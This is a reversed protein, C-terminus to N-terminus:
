SFHFTIRGSDQEGAQVITLGSEQIFGQEYLNHCDTSCSQPELCVYPMEARTYVVVHTFQKSGEIKLTFDSYQIQSKAAGGMTTFVKDLSLDSVRKGGRFDDDTGAVPILKGSPLLDSDSEMSFSVDSVIEMGDKKIFLPHIAFGYGLPKSSTNLVSYDWSVSKETATITVSLDSPYDNPIAEGGLALTGTIRCCTDDAKTGVLTFPNRRAQGHMVARSKKGAFLFVGDRIRNPTPFLIPAGRLAGKQVELADFFLLEQGKYSLSTVNMGHDLDVSVTLYRGSLTFVPYTQVTGETITFMRM